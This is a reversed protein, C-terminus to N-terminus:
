KISIGIKLSWGGGYAAENDSVSVVINAPLEGAYRGGIRWYITHSVQDSARFTNCVQSLRM